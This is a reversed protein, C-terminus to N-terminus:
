SGLARSSNRSLRGGRALQLSTVFGVCTIWKAETKFINARWQCCDWESRGGASRTGGCEPDVATPEAQQCQIGLVQRDPSSYGCVRWQRGTWRIWEGEKISLERFSDFVIRTIGVSPCVCIDSQFVEQIVSWVFHVSTRDTSLWCASWPLSDTVKSVILMGKLSRVYHSGSLVTLVTKSWVGRKWYCCGGCWQWNPVKRCM